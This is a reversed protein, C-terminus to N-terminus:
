KKINAIQAAITEDKNQSSNSSGLWFQLVQKMESVAYGILTGSLVSDTKVVGALVAAIM